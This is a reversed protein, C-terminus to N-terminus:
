PWAARSAADSRGQVISASLIAISASSRRAATALGSRSSRSGAFSVVSLRLWPFNWKLEGYAIILGRAASPLRASRVAFKGAANCTPRLRVWAYVRLRLGKHRADGDQISAAGSCFLSRGTGMGTGDAQLAVAIGMVPRPPDRDLLAEEFGVPSSPRTDRPCDWPRPRVRSPNQRGSSPIAAGPRRARPRDPTRIPRSRARAAARAPALDDPEVGRHAGAGDHHALIRVIASARRDACDHRDGHGPVGAGEIGRDLHQLGGAHREVLDLEHVGVVPEVRQEAALCSAAANISGSTLRAAAAPQRLIASRRQRPPM